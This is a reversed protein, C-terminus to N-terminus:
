RSGGAMEVAALQAALTDLQATLIEIVRRREDEPLHRRWWSLARRCRRCRCTPMQDAKAGNCEACAPQLNKAAVWGNSDVGGVCRPVIHDYTTAVAFCYHCWLEGSQLVERWGPPAATSV